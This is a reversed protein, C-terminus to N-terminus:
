GLQETAALSRIYCDKNTWGHAVSEGSLRQQHLAVKVQTMELKLLFLPSSAHSPLEQFLCLTQHYRWLKLPLYNWELRGLDKM